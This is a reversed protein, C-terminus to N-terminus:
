KPSGGLVKGERRPDKHMLQLRSDLGQDFKSRLREQIDLVKAVYERTEAATRTSGARLYGANVPGGNYEALVLREDNYASFLVDLYLAAMETNKRPDYLADDSYEWGLMRALMRGTAPWIQYLGRANAASRARVDYGSEATGMALLTLPDVTPYKESAELILKSYEYAEKLGVRRNVLLIEDRMGLMLRQRASQFDIGADLSQVRREMQGMAEKTDRNLASVRHFTYLALGSTIVLLLGLSSVAVHAWPAARRSTRRKKGAKTASPQPALELLRGSDADFTKIQERQLRRM